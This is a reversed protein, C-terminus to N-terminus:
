PNIILTLHLSPVFGALSLAGVSAERPYAPQLGSLTLSAAAPSLFGINGGPTLNHELSQTTLVATAPSITQIFLISPPNEPLDTYDPPLANTVVQLTMLTPALGQMTLAGQAPRINPDLLAVYGTITLAAQSPTRFATNLEQITPTLGAITILGPLASIGGPASELNFFYRRSGSDLLDSYLRAM